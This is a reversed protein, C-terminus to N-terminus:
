QKVPPSNVAAQFKPNGLFRQFSDDKKPNPMGEGAIANAKNEFAKKLYMITKDLDNREAYTCALNYFFMPYNPDKTLGYRFTKEANDLDGTIGYAMGLNDVLARWLDHELKPNQKEMDLAIQYPAIADKYQQQLFFRSGIAMYYRSDQQNTKQTGSDQTWGVAAFSIVLAILILKKM